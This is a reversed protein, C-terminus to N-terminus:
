DCKQKSMLNESRKLALDAKHKLTWMEEYMKQREDNLFKREPKPINNETEKIKKEYDKYSIGPHEREISQREQIMGTARLNKMMELLQKSSNDWEEPNFDKRQDDYLRLSM